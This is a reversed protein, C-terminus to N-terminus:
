HLLQTNALIWAVTTPLKSYYIPPTFLATNLNAWSHVCLVSVGPSAKGLHIRNNFYQRSRFWSKETCAVATTFHERAMWITTPPHQAQSQGVYVRQPTAGVRVMGMPDPNSTQLTRWALSAVRSDRFGSDYRERWTIGCSRMECQTMNEFTRTVYPLHEDTKAALKKRTLGIMDETVTSKLLSLDVRRVGAPSTSHSLLIKLRAGWPGILRLLRPTERGSGGSM